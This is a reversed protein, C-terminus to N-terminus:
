RNTESLSASLAARICKDRLFFRAQAEANPGDFKHYAIESAYDRGAEYRPSSVSEVLWMDGSLGYNSVRRLRWESVTKEWSAHAASIQEQTPTM